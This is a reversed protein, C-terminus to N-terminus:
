TETGDDERKESHSIRGVLLMQRVKGREEKELTEPM